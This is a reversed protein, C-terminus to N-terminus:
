IESEREIVTLTRVPFDVTMDKVPLFDTNATANWTLGDDQREFVHSIGLYQRNRDIGATWIALVRSTQPLPSNDPNLCSVWGQQIYIPSCVVNFGPAGQSYGEKASINFRASCGGPSCGWIYNEATWLAEPVPISTSDQCRKAAAADRSTGWKIDIAAGSASAIIGSVIIFIQSAYM